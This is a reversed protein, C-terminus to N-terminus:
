IGRNLVKKKILYIGIGIIALCITTIGLYLLISGTKISIILLASSANNEKAEEKEVINELNSIKELKANNAFTGANEDTMTKTLILEIETTEGPKITKGSLSTTYLNGDSDKYWEKNMESNFELGSPLSDKLSNVYGTIEGENKITFKYNVLVEAGSMYKAVLDVKATHGDKYEYKETGQKDVVTISTIKKDLSLDFVPNQIIGMDINEKNSTLEIVDTLGAIKKDGNIIITTRIADSNVNDQVNDKQYTTVTYNQTDFDFMVSYSGSQLNNFVYKGQKDTTTVIKNEQLDTAFKGTINNILTVTVNEQLKEGDNRIGDKNEDLWVCGSITYLQETPTEVSPTEPTPETPTEPTTPASPVSPTEPQTPENPTEPQTPETPTEPTTPETPTEPKEDQKNNTDGYDLDDPTYTGDGSNVKLEPQIVIKTENSTKRNEGYLIEAKNILEINEIKEAEVLGVEAIIRVATNEGKNLYLTSRDINRNVNSSSYKLEGDKYEELKKVILQEPISDKILVSGSAGGINEIEITYIVEDGKKLIEKETRNSTLKITYDSQKIEITKANSEYIENNSNVQAITTINAEYGNTLKNVKAKVCIVNEENEKLKEINYEFINNNVAGQKEISYGDFQDYSTLGGEIYTLSAPIKFQVKVDKLKKNSVNKVSIYYRIEYGVNYKVGIMNEGSTTLRTEIKAPKLILKKETIITQNNCTLKVTNTIEQEEAVDAMTLMIEYEKTEGTKLTEINWTKNKLKEDNTIQTYNEINGNIVKLYTYIANDPIIDELKINTLDETGNNTVTIKYTVRQKSHVYNQSIIPTLTVSVKNEIGSKSSLVASNETKYVTLNNTPTVIGFTSSDSLNQENYTYNIETKVYTEQNYGINAQSKLYIEIQKTAKSELELNELEIKYAKAENTYEETWSENNYTANKNTSYYVKGNKVEIPKSLELDFTSNLEENIYGIRGIIQTNTIKADYNNVLNITQTIEKQEANNQIEVIKPENDISTITKGNELGTINSLVLLGAKSIINVEKTAITQEKNQKCTVTINDKHTPLTDDFDINEIDMVISAGGSVNTLDYATQKGELEITVVNKTATANKITLGNGNVIEPSSLNGNKIGDPLKITITPNNFLKTASNTSDLNITLTTKSTQLTSFNVNSSNVSIKTQPEQLPLEVIEKNENIVSTTKISKLKSVNVKYDESAKITDENKFNIYGESIPKTTKITLSKVGDGFEIKAISEEPSLIKINEESYIIALRKVTKENESLEIYKLTALLTEGEYIEIKGEQGLIKDFENKSIETSKYLLKGESSIETKEEDRLIFKNEEMKMTLEKLTNSNLVCLTSVTNYDTDYSNKNEVNSYMFGKYINKELRTVRFALLEGKNDKEKLEIGEVKESTTSANETEFNVKAVVSYQLTIEEENGTYAQAPYIYIIEFEDKSEKNYNTNTGENEYSITLLGSNSDYNQNIKQNNNEGTTLSTNASVVNAREPLCENITPMSVVIQTGKVPLNTEQEELTLQLKTKIAVGSNYQKEQTEETTENEEIKIEDKFQVYQSNELSLRIDPEKIDQAIVKSLGLGFMYCNSHLILMAVLITVLKRIFNKLSM